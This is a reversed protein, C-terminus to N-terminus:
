GVREADIVSPLYRNGRRQMQSRNVAEVFSRAAVTITQSEGTPFITKVRYREKPGFGSLRQKIERMQEQEELTLIPPPPEEEPTPEPEEEDMGPEVKQPTDQKPEQPQDQRPEQAEDTRVPQDVLPRQEEEPKVPQDLITEAAEKLDAKEKTTFKYRDARDTYDSLDIITSEIPEGRDTVGALINILTGVPLDPTREKMFNLYEDMNWGLDDLYDEFEQVVKPIQASGASSREPTALEPHKKYFEAVEELNLYVKKVGARIEAVSYPQAKGKLKELERAAAKELDSVDIEGYKGLIRRWVKSNAVKAILQGALLDAPSPTFIGGLARFGRDAERSVLATESWSFPLTLEAASGIIMQTAAYGIRNLAEETSKIRYPGPGLRGGPRGITYATVLPEDPLGSKKFFEDSLDQLKQTTERFRPGTGGVRYMPLPESPNLSYLIDRRLLEAKKEIRRAQQELAEATQATVQLGKQAEFERQAQTPQAAKYTARAAEAEKVLGREPTEKRIMPELQQRLKQKEKETLKSVPKSQDTRIVPKLQQALKQKEEETLQSIPKSM